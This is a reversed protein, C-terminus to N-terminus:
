WGGFKRHDGQFAVLRPFLVLHLSIGFAREESIDDNLFNTYLGHGAFPIEDKSVCDFFCRKLYKLNRAIDGAYPSEICVFKKNM